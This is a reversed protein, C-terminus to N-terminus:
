RGLGAVFIQAWRKVLEYQRRTLHMPNRDSGRMLAPMRRDYALPDLPPRLWREVFAPDDRLRDKLYELANLRRHKRKGLSGVPLADVRSLLTGSTQSSAWLTGIPPFEPDEPPGGDPPRNPFGRSNERHSRDNQADKNSLDSTELARQFIDAVIEALESMPIDEVRVAERDVRDALGDQLSVFPRSDPSFDPPGVAIRAFAPPLDGVACAVLGDSVDDILGVSRGSELTAALGGPNVRGDEPLPGPPDNAINFGVWAAAPNLIRREQPLSLEGWESDGAIRQDLDTPGYVVGAPAYVRLRLGPLADTPRVAQVAGLRVFEPGPALPEGAVDTPTLGKLDRRATDNAPIDPERAVIRDADRLTYHYPKLNALEVSWRIDGLGLGAATLVAETIPGEHDGAADRWAGHLEFFPCVPHFRSEEDKLVIENFQRAEVVQPNGADDVTITDEPVLVTKMSGDPRVTPAGWSFAQCPKAASGLRGFALPPLLWTKLIETM